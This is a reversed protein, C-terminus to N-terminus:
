SSRDLLLKAGHRSLVTVRRFLFATIVQPWSRPIAVSGTSIVMKLDERVQVVPPFFYAHYRKTVLITPLKPTWVFSSPIRNKSSKKLEKLADECVQTVQHFMVM